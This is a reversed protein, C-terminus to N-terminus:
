PQTTTFVVDVWYNAANYTFVPEASSSSYVYVGGDTLATLPGNTVPSALANADAAYGGDPALYSATYTDGATVAVPTSFSAQQWGGAAV